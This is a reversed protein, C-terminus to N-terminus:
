QTIKKLLERQKRIDIAHNIGMVEFVQRMSKGKRYRPYRNLELITKGRPDDIFVLWCKMGHSIFSVRWLGEALKVDNRLRM